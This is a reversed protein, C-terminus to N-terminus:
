RGKKNRYVYFKLKAVYTRLHSPGSSEFEYDAKIRNIMNMLSEERNSNNGIFNNEYQDNIDLNGMRLVNNEIMTEPGGRGVPLKRNRQRDFNRNSRSNYPSQQMRPERNFRNPPPMRQEYTPHYDDFRPTNHYRPLPPPPPMNQFWRNDPQHYDYHGLPPGDFHGTIPPPGDFHGTIPPPGAFHNPPPGNYHVPPPVNFHDSPPTPPPGNFPLPDVYHSMQHEVYNPPGNFYDPHQPPPPPPNFRQNYHSSNRNSYNSSNNNRFSQRSNMVNKDNNKSSGQQQNNEVNHLSKEALNPSDNNFLLQKINLIEFCQQSLENKTIYKKAILYKLAEFAAINAATKKNIGDGSGVIQNISQIKVDCHFTHQNNAVNDTKIDYDIKLKKKSCWLNLAAKTNTLDM